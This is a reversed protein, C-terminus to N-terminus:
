NECLSWDIDLFLLTDASIMLKEALAEFVGEIVWSSEICQSSLECDIVKQPRKRSFGGPLWVISDLNVEKVQLQALLKASLWSKGSGSNGIILAKKM